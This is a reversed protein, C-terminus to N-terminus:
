TGLLYRLAPTAEPADANDLADAVNSLLGAQRKTFAAPCNDPIADIALRRLIDATLEPLGERTDTSVGVINPPAAALDTKNAVPLINPDARLRRWTPDTEDPPASADFVALVLDARYIRSFARRVAEADLPDAPSWLGATDTLWVGRGALDALERIWDRTTGATDTVICARRGILLNTLSSKGANPPGALVVEPPDLLRRVVPWFDAAARLEAALSLADYVGDAYILRLAREALESVGASWQHTLISVTKATRASPLTTLLEDGIAPNNRGPASRPWLDPEAMAAPADPSVIAGTNELLQLVRQTVRPGGHINIEATAQGDGDLSDTVTVIAEDLRRSDDRIEGLTLRDPASDAHGRPTFVAEVIRRTDPGALLIVAIGGAGGPTQCIATTQDMTASARLLVRLDPMSGRREGFRWM